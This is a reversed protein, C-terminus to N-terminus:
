MYSCGPKDSKEEKDHQHDEIKEKGKKKDSKAGAKADIKANIKNVHELMYKKSGFKFEFNGTFTIINVTTKYIYSILGLQDNCYDILRSYNEIADIM